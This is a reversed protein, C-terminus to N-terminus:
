PRGSSGGNFQRKVLAVVRVGADACRPRAHASHTQETMFLERMPGVANITTPNNLSSLTSLQALVPHIFRYDHTRPQRRLITRATLESHLKV